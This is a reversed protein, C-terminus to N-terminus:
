VIHDWEDTLAKVGHGKNKMEILMAEVSRHLGSLVVQKSGHRQGIAHELRSQHQEMRSSSQEWKGRPRCICGSAGALQVAKADQQLGTQLGTQLGSALSFVPEPRRLHFRRAQSASLRRPLYQSSSTSFIMNNYQAHEREERTHEREKKTEREEKQPHYCM